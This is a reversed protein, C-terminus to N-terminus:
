ENEGAKFRPPKEGFFVWSPYKKVTEMFERLDDSILEINEIVVRLNNERSNLIQDTKHITRKLEAITAPLEATSEKVNKLSALVEPSNVISDISSVTRDLSKLVARLDESVEKINADDVANSTTVILKNVEDSIGKFDISEITKTLKEIAQTILTITGPASPIYIYKPKWNIEVPLHDKPDLYVANLFAVGTIGQSALQLRLGNEIMEKLGKKREFENKYMGKGTKSVLTPYIEARVYVYQYDTNYEAFVFGMESVNGIDVGQYKLASGVNLGQVSQDFYTEVYIKEQFFKGAGFIVIAFALLLTGLITFLGIKFYNPKQSM